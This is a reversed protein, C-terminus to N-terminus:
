WLMEQDPNDQIKRKSKKEPPRASTMGDKSIVAAQAVGSYFKLSLLEGKKLKTADRVAEGAANRVVAYGKRLPFLPNLANLKGSLLRLEATRDRLLREQATNMRESIDDLQRVPREMLLMPDALIRSTALRQFRGRLKEYYVRLGQLLRKKFGDVKQLVEERNKVVMEAAASPTEARKDAVFDAITTDIEHGVCSIVPIRSAAITRAVIEENFAWLDELSGGGRGALIVDMDPFNDNLLRIAAAIEEAAGKGQVLAPSLIVHLNGGRRRLVSLIDRIAAGSPSTVIGIQKPFPPIPRKRSADFLGEAQLKKKLKEFEIQLRGLGEEELNKVDIQCRSNYVTIGGWVRMQMGNEIDGRFAPASWKYLVCNIVTREDKLDFYIHGRSSKKVGSVEGRVCVYHFSRTLAAKIEATIESVSYVVEQEEGPTSYNEPEVSESDYGGDFGGFRIM